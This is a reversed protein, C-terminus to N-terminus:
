KDRYIKPIDRNAQLWDLEGTVAASFARQGTGPTIRVGASTRGTSLDYGAQYERDLNSCGPLFILAAVGAILTVPCKGCKLFRWLAATLFRCLIAVSLLAEACAGANRGDLVHMSANVALAGILFALSLREVITYGRYKTQMLLLGIIASLCNAAVIVPECNNM